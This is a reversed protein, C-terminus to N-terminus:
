DTVDQEDLQLADLWGLLEEAGSTEYLMGDISARGDILILLERTQSGEADYWVIRYGQELMFEEDTLEFKVADTLANLEALQKESSITMDYMWGEAVSYGQEYQYAALAILATPAATQQEEKKQACGTMLCLLCILLWAIGKKM